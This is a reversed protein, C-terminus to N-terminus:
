PLSEPMIDAYSALVDKIERPITEDTTVDEMLPTAMFTPKERALGRKLQIASIMRLNGPKKISAPVVTPHKHNTIVLCKTLPMPIVKHELLFDMGLVVDFDDMRVVVLDMERSWAGLKLPVRKSVGVIPLAKSNIAKM